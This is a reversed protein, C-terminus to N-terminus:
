AVGELDLFSTTAPPVRYIVLDDTRLREEGQRELHRALGRYHDLWWFAPGPILLYEIGRAALAEVQAIAEADDAPYHGAWTGDSRRPFHCARRGGLGLLRDDGRSVVAVAAAPPLVAVAAACVRGVLADYERDAARRPRRWPRAWKSEFRDRNEAFLRAYAGGGFLKGFSAEGFHHVFVEEAIALRYGAARLRVSYDDDEFLGVGFREDLPGVAQWTTRRMALCFMALMGADRVHGARQLAHERACELFGGLTGYSAAVESESGIRNTVPNLAGAAGNELLRCLGALWGPAVITDNNLLILIGGRAAELGRNCGRAFGENTENLLPRFRAFRRAMERLYDTTGDESGNDVVVIECEEPATTALVSELCLRTLELNDYTVVIVSARPTVTAAGAPEGEPLPRERIAALTEDELRLPRRSRPTLVLDAPLSLAQRATWGGNASGTGPRGAPVRLGLEDLLRGLVVDHAFCERAVARAHRCAAAYDAEIIDLAALVDDADEFAHLGPGVPLIDRFGTEQTIVPLGAALYTASRDSFWGSRFRVNQDKAVTFEGRSNEIYSRYADSDYSFALANRVRWGRSTLLTEDEPEFSSLALEFRPGARAPLDLLKLFEHHKSWTYVEGEHHLTRFPQRWNAVTTYRDGPRGARARWFDLVVPQRTPVFAYRGTVPLRCGPRGYNEAFTFFARHQDLMRLTEVRGQALEIELEVPDTGLFVLRGGEAFEPRPETGGHLNIIADATDYLRRLGRESLGYCRGDDSLAHFAWRDGFGFRGLERELFAAARASGSEGPREVFHSPTRAHAEVYWVDCGLRRLGDLYHLAQWLVGGVPMKTIMGLLVIRPKRNTRV